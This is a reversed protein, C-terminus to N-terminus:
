PCGGLPGSRREGVLALARGPYLALSTDEVAHVARRPAFPNMQRLPFLKRLHEAELIAEPRTQTDPLALSQNLINM